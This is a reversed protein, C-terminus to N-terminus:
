CNQGSCRKGADCLQIEVDVAEGEAPELGAEVGGTTFGNADAARVLAASAAIFRAAWDVFSANCTPVAMGAGAFCGIAAADTGL